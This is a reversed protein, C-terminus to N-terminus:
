PTREPKKAVFSITLASWKNTGDKMKSLSDTANSVYAQFTLTEQGYPFTVVHYAAPATLTEYLADYDNLSKTSKGFVM